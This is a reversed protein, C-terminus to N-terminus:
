APVISFARTSISSNNSASGCKFGNTGLSSCSNNGLALRMASFSIPLVLALVVSEHCCTKSSSYLHPFNHFSNNFVAGDDGGTVCVLGIHQDVAFLNRQDPAVQGGVVM